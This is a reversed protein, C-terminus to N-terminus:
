CTQFTEEKGAGAFTSADHFDFYLQNWRWDPEMTGHRRVLSSAHQEQNNVIMDIEIIYDSTKKHKQSLLHINSILFNKDLPFDM